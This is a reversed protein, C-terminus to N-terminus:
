SVIGKNQGYGVAEPDFASVVCQHPVWCARGNFERWFGWNRIHPLGIFLSWVQQEKNGEDVYLVVRHPTRPLRFVPRLRRVSKCLSREPLPQGAVPPYDFREEMYSGQLIVTVNAMRHDHLDEPDSHRFCHLYINLFHNRRIVFYRWYDPDDAVAGIPIRKVHPDDRVRQIFGDIKRDLWKM